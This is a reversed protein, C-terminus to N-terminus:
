TMDTHVIFGYCVVVLCDLTNEMAVLIYAGVVFCKYFMQSREYIIYVTTDNSNSTCICMTGIKNVSFDSLPILDSASHLM